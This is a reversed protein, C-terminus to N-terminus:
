DRERPVPVNWRDLVPTGHEHGLVGYSGTAFTFLAGSAAPLGLWRAALVRLVRGHAVLAADGEALLPRVVVLARDARVGVEEATEGPTQGPPVGDRWLAWDRLGPRRRIEEVTAGEFGGYDWEALDPHPRSQPWGALTATERARQRPSTLVARFRRAALARGLALAQEVGVPTLVQEVRGTLRGTRSWPTEGHRVVVIAGV